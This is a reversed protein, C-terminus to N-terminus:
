RQVRVGMSRATGEIQRMAAALDDTNLDPLKRRAVAELEQVTITQPEDHGPRAAGKARIVQKILFATPPTKLHLDWSRDEYVLIMVPIVEGGFRATEADYRKKVELTAVGHPGLMKGLDVMAANGAQLELKVQAMLKKQAM